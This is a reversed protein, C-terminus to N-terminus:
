ELNKGPWSNRQLASICKLASIETTAKSMLGPGKPHHSSHALSVPVPCRRETNGKRGSVAQCWGSDGRQKQLSNSFRPSLGKNLIELPSCCKSSARLRFGFHADARLSKWGSLQQLSDWGRWAAPFATCGEALSSPCISTMPAGAGSGAQSQAGLSHGPTQQSHDMLTRQRHSPCLHAGARGMAIPHVSSSSRSEVGGCRAPNWHATLDLAMTLHGTFPEPAQNGGFDWCGCRLRPGSVDALNRQSLGRARTPSATGEVPRLTHWHKIFRIQGM